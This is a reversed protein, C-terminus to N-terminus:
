KSSTPAWNLIVTIPAPMEEALVVLLFRQGDPTVAYDPKGAGTYARVLIRGPILPVPKGPEITKGDASVVIPVGVLTGHPSVYFLEKGDARWRRAIGVGTSIQRKGGPMHVHLRMSM